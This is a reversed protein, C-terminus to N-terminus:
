KGIRDPCDAPDIPSLYKGCVQCQFEHLCQWTRGDAVFTRKVRFQLGRPVPMGRPYVPLPDVPIWKGYERWGCHRNYYTTHLVVIVRHERGPKGKCWNRTDKKAPLKWPLRFIDSAAQDETAAERVQDNRAPETGWEWKRRSHRESV